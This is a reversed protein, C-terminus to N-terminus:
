KYCNFVAMVVTDLKDPFSNNNLYRRVSRTSKNMALALHADLLKDHLAKKLLEPDIRM